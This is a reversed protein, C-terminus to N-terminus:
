RLCIASCTPIPNSIGEITGLTGLGHL